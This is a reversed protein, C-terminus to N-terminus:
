KSKRSKKQILLLLPVEEENKYMESYFNNNIFNKLEKYRSIPVELAIIAYNDLNCIGSVSTRMHNIFNIRPYKEKLVNIISDIKDIKKKNKMFYDYSLQAIKEAYLPLDKVEINLGVQKALSLATYLDNSYTPALYAEHIKGKFPLRNCIEQDIKDYKWLIKCDNKGDYDKGIQVYVWEFIDRAIKGDLERNLMVIGM